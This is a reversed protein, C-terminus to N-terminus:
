PLEVVRVMNTNGSSGLPVGATLVAFDGSSLLGTLEARHIATNFLAEENEELGIIIPVTGFLLNMQCAVRSNPSCAIVPCSPQLRSLRRATFGSITVTIIAKANVEDAVTCSAHCISATTDRCAAEERVMWERRDRYNIDRESRRAIRAMTKVAEVPYKGAATEGSLMIATTGDYIANAVDTIEARTPRPNHMMSDLMQTATISIKGALQAKRIIKKQIIPVDELPVEVGLDGRAVMVGDSVELIEDINNVGQMNEIKAIVQMKSDYADLLKRIERIDDATRTFSCAIFDFGMKCGFIIDEKDSPSIFPMSLEVDPVNIGKRDSVQGGNEVTCIIETGQVQDVKLGILGDDILIRTGPKVDGPLDEYTIAARTEDGVIDETTLTFKAGKELTVKKDRFTKLRIEPGRTDLLSAIPLNMGIRVKRLRQFKEEHEKHTGHSFNFRAVNMGAAVLERMMEESESSPGITCIIKTMRM